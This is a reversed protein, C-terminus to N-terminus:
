LTRRKAANMTQVLKLEAAKLGRIRYHGYPLTSVGDSLLYVKDDAPSLLRKVIATSVLQHHRSSIGFMDRKEITYDHGIADTNNLLCNRYNVHSCASDSQVIHRKIGKGTKKEKQDDLLCSYMKSRLGCFELCRQLKGSKSVFENKFMGLAKGGHSIRRIIDPNNAFHTKPYNSFDFEGQLEQEFVRTVFDCGDMPCVCEGSYDWCAQFHREAVCTCHNVRSTGDLVGCKCSFSPSVCTNFRIPIYYAFVLSDTDTLLLQVQKGFSQKMTNYWFGYMRLKSLDLISSGVLIPAKLDVRNKLLEVLVVGDDTGERIITHTQYLPNKTFKIMDVSDLAIKIDRHKRNNQIMKGYATNNFLKYLDREFETMGSASRRLNNADIYGKMWASQNFSLIRHVKKLEVGLHLYLQLIRYHLRYNSKDELTCLLKVTKEDHRLENNEDFRILLEKAYKSLETTRVQRKVPAVPYDKFYDHLHEPIHLDVELFYGVPQDETLSLIHTRTFHKEQLKDLWKYDGTPLCQSMAWGYLNNADLYLIETNADAVAHRHSIVSIGGRVSEEAYLYMNIQDENFLDIEFPIVCDDLIPYVSTLNANFLIQRVDTPAKMIPTHHFLADQTFGPLSMYYSPELKKERLCVSRFNQFVDTLLLVDTKLYFDHYDQMTQMKMSSWITQAHVYDDETIDDGRLSSYFSEIPPLETEMFRSPNDMYEYPYVGKRLLLKFEMDPDRENCMDLEQFRKRTEIFAIDNDKALSTVLQDLSATLFANSDLFCIYDMRLSLIKEGEQPIITPMNMALIERTLCQIIVHIDYGKLNHFFVPIFFGRQISGNIIYSKLNLNCHSHAAGRFNYGAKSHDHDRVKSANQKIKEPDDGWSRMYGGVFPLSCIHCHTMTEFAIEDVKSMTLPFQHNRYHEMCEDRRTKVAELFKLGVDSPKPIGNDDYIIPDTCTYSDLWDILGDFSIVKLAYGCAIHHHTISRNNIQKSPVLLCEFDAYMVYPKPYQKSYAGFRHFADERKPYIAQAPKVNVCSFDKEHENLLHQTKFNGFCNLCYRRKHHSNTIAQENLLTNYKTVYCYHSRRIHTGEELLLLCVVWRDPTFNRSQYVPVFLKGELGFVYLAINFEDKNLKEFRGLDCPKVPFEIVKEEGFSFNHLRLYAHVRFANNPVQGTRKHILALELSYRFCEEDNNKINIVCKKTAIWDPTAIFSGGPIADRSNIIAEHPIYEATKITLSVIHDQNWGSSHKTFDVIQESIQEAGIQITSRLQTPSTVTVAPTRFGYEITRMEGDDFRKFQVRLNFSVKMARRDRLRHILFSSVSALKDRFFASLSVYWQGDEDKGSIIKDVVTSSLASRTEEADPNNERIAGGFFDEVDSHESANAHDAIRQEHVERRKKRKYSEEAHSYGARKRYSHSSSAM